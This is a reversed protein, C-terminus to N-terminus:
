LLQGNYLAGLIRYGWGRLCVCVKSVCTDHKGFRYGVKSKNLYDMGLIGAIDLGYDMDGIQIKFKSLLILSLVPRTFL